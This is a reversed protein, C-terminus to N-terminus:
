EYTYGGDNLFKKLEILKNFDTATVTFTLKYIKKKPEEAVEATQMPAQIPSKLIEVVNEVKEVAQKQLETLREREAQREKEEEIRKIRDTVTTIANSVNLSKKYEVLIESKHEQVDILDLDEKTKNLFQKVGDKLSKLSNSIGVKVGTDEFKVFDINLSTKLEEFYKKVENEKELKVASEVEDVKSKLDSDASKFLDSVYEKYVKEFAEYPELVKSKVEKRKAEIEKFENNLEARVKKVEKVSDETCILAKANNVKEQIELSMKKLHEEIIPLQKIIILDSM